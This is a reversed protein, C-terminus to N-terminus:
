KKMWFMNQLSKMFLRLSDGLFLTKATLPFCFAFNVFLIIFYVKMKIKNRLMGKRVIFGNLIIAVVM